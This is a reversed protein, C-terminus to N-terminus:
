LRVPGWRGTGRMSLGLGQTIHCTDQFVNHTSPIHYRVHDCLHRVNHHGGWPIIRLLLLLHHHLLCHGPSSYGNLPDVLVYRIRDVLPLAWGPSAPLFYLQNLGILM